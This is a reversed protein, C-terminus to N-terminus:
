AVHDVGRQGRFRLRSEQRQACRQDTRHQAASPLDSDIRPVRSSAGWGAIRYRGHLFAGTRLEGGGLLPELRTLVGGTSHGSPIAARPVYAEPRM